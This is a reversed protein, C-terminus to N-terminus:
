RCDEAASAKGAPFWAALFAAAQEAYFRCAIGREAQGRAQV